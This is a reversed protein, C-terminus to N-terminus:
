SPEDGPPLERVRSEIGAPAADAPLEAAGHGTLPRGRGATDRLDRLVRTILLTPRGEPPRASDPANEYHEETVTVKRKRVMTFQFEEVDEMLTRMARMPRTGDVFRAVPAPVFAGAVGSVARGILPLPGPLLDLPGRREPVAVATEAGSAAPLAAREPLTTVAQVADARDADPRADVARPVVGGAVARRGPVDDAALLEDQHRLGLEARVQARRVAIATDADEEAWRRIRRASVLREQDTQGRWLRLLLPAVTLLVMVLVAGLRPILAVPRATTYGNMAEWRVLLGTNAKALAEAAERDRDVREGASTIAADLQPVRRDREARAATLDTDAGALEARAQEAEPGRGAEGTILQAPCGPAPHYECRAVLLAADRRAGATAVRDDLAAREARLQALRGVRDAGAVSTAATDAQDALQESIPGTFIMVAALEGLVVGVLAAVLGLGVLTARRGPATALVRGLGGVFLGALLTAVAAAPLALGGTVAAGTTVAWAALAALLVALGTSQYASRETSEAIDRPDGGGLWVMVDGPRSAAPSSVAGDPLPEHGSPDETMGLM